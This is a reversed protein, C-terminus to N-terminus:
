NSCINFMGNDANSTPMRCRRFLALMPGFLTILVRMALLQRKIYIALMTSTASWSNSLEPITMTNEDSMSSQSGLSNDKRLSPGGYNRWKLRQLHVFSMKSHRLLGISCKSNRDELIVRSIDLVIDESLRTSIGDAFCIVLILGYDVSKWWKWHNPLDRQRM